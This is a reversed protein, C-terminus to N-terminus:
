PCIFFAGSTWTAPQELRIRVVQERDAPMLAGFFNTLSVYPDLRVRVEAESGIASGGIQTFTIREGTALNMSDCTTAGMTPVSGANVAAQRAAERAGHRIDLDNSLLWGFEVIGLVLALLIPMIIAFEILAAGRQDKGRNRLKNLLTRMWGASPLAGRNGDM